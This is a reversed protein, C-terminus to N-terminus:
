PVVPPAAALPAPIGISEGTPLKKTRGYESRVAVFQDARSQWLQIALDYKVLVNTIWYPRNERLWAAQYLDRTLSYGDRLDQMRGNVWSVDSLSRNTDRRSTDAANAYSRRIDDAFQFKMGIFDLRRAGLELADLADANPVPGAARLQAVYVLASEAAVRLDHSFPRIKEAAIVGDASFPDRWFLADSGEGLGAKQLTAHAVMLLREAADARGTTDRYFSRGYSQQFREISSEGPQWGAAAGFLVGAWTQNFLSEGDDDWSTNLLGVAGLRQGDRVFNRINVFAINNNPYVRNWSSVGPAVWTEIGAKTFPTIDRDFSQSAGYSWAVAIMEKPLSGVLNPHNVAVDGWFLYKKGPRKISEVIDKLFGLYVPGISDRKVRDATQGRGLEVTEDAGIHVFHSPFISDIEAFWQKILSMSGPQVPALVHGHPTEALPAYLEYKLVHHLHGFAEQEPIVDIHYRRAYSVLEAVDARTITGGPPGVLPNSRYELTHEFYPSYVNMKYAAFTRLQRKMYDLTPVPGRSLDDHLGRYRMAPWDRVTAMRLLASPGRGIVLQKVTQAGYFVGPASAGIVNLTTGDPVLLYGEDRMEQGFTAHTRAMLAKAAPSGSRLLVVRASGGGKAVMVGSERFADRLDRAAFGDTSDVPTAVDVGRRLAIERDVRSERPQPVLLLPHQARLSSPLALLAALAFLRLSSRM